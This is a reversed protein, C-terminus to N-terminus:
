AAISNLPINVQNLDFPALLKRLTSIKLDKGEKLYNSVNSPKLDCMFSFEKLGIVKVVTRLVELDNSYEERLAQFFLKRRKKSKIMEKSLDEQWSNYRNAMKISRLFKNQKKYTRARIERLTRGEVM